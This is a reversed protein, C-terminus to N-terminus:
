NIKSILSRLSISLMLGARNSFRDGLYGAVMTSSWWAVASATNLFGFQSRTLGLDISIEPMILSSQGSGYIHKITHAVAITGAVKNRGKTLETADLPIETVLNSGITALFRDFVETFVLLASDVSGTM